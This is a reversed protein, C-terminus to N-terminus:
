HVQVSVSYNYQKYSGAVQMVSVIVRIVGICIDYVCVCVGVCVNEPLILTMKTPYYAQNETFM